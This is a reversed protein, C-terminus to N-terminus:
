WEWGYSYTFPAQMNVISLYFLWLLAAVPMSEFKVLLFCLFFGVWSVLELQLDGYGLMNFIPTPRSSHPNAPSLGYAGWM